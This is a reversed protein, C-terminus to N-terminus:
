LELIRRPDIRGRLFDGIAILNGVLRGRRDITPESWFSRLLNSAINKIMLSNGLEPRMTGKRKLYIINAVQSYGLKRGPTRGKTSGLHVGTISKSSVMKGHRSVRNSFDIDEQWGYLPLNEDFRLGDLVSFRFAMNCGYLEKRDRFPASTPVPYSEIIALGQEISYGGHRVGDGLLDGTVGVVDPESLFVAEVRELFHREPVFDDDFFVVIDARDKLLDLSANRQRCLGRSTFHIEPATRAAEIGEVDAPDVSVVIVGDAPRSQESLLDAVAAATAPRGVTAIVVFLRLSGAKPVGPWKSEANTSVAPGQAGLTPKGAKHPM